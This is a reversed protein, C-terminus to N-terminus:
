YLVRLPEPSGQHPRKKTKSGTLTVAGKKIKKNSSNSFSRNQSNAIAKKGEISEDGSMEPIEEAEFELIEELTRAEGFEELQQWGVQAFWCVTKHEDYFGEDISDGWYYSKAMKIDGTVEAIVGLRYFAWTTRETNVKPQKTENSYIGSFYDQAKKYNKAKLAEEGKKKYYNYNYKSSCCGGVFLVFCFVLFLSICRYKKLLRM